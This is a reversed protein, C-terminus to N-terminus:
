THKKKFNWLMTLYSLATRGARQEPCTGQLFVEHTKPPKKTTEAKDNQSPLYDTIMLQFAPHDVGIIM